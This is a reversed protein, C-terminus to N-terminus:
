HLCNPKQAQFSHTWKGMLNYNQNQTLRKQDSDVHGPRTLIHLCSAEMIHAMHIDTEELSLNSLGMEISHSESM